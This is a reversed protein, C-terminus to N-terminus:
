ESDCNECFDEIGYDDTSIWKICGGCLIKDDLNVDKLVKKFNDHFTTNYENVLEALLCQIDHSPIVSPINQREQSSSM